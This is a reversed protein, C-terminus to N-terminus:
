NLVVQALKPMAASVLKAMRADTNHATELIEGLTTPQLADAICMDTLISFGVVKLGAHVAVIVEPVTSMGVADAGVERLFRYEAATELNPGALAVYVGQALRMSLELATQEVVNRLATTYCDFMDPFRVGLENDNAGILPNDGIMNIHDTILMIDGRRFKPNLNGAANSVLLAKVGMAKMVRVPYTIQKMTWGEYYHFRGQMAMVPVGALKGFLMKGAHSEVTSRAFHPLEGYPIEAEVEIAKAVAGLGTGLIIGFVPQGAYRQRIAPITEELQSRIQLM